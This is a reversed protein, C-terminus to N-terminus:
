MNLSHHCNAESQGKITHRHRCNISQETHMFNRDEIHPLYPQSELVLLFTSFIFGLGWQRTSHAGRLIHNTSSEATPNIHM